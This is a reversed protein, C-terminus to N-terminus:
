QPGGWWHTHGGGGGGWVVGEPDAGPVYCYSSTVGFSGPTGYFYFMVRISPPPNDIAKDSRRLSSGVSGCRM